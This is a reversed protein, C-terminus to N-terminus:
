VQIADAAAYRRHVCVRRPFSDAPSGVRRAAPAPAGPPATSTSAVGRRLAGLCTGDANVQGVWAPFENGEGTEEPSRPSRSASEPPTGARGPRSTRPHPHPGSCTSGDSRSSSIAPRSADRAAGRVTRVTRPHVRDALRRTLLGSPHRTSSRRRGVAQSTSRSSTPSMTGGIASRTALLTSGDPSYSGAVFSLGSRWPTLMRHRGTSLDVVRIATGSTAQGITRSRAGSPSRSVTFALTGDTPLFAPFIRRPQRPVPQYGGGAAPRHLAPDLRRPIRRRRAELRRAVLRASTGPGTRGPPRRARERPGPRRRGRCEGVAALQSRAPSRGSRRHFRGAPGRSRGSSGCRGLSRSLRM